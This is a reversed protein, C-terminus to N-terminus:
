GTGSTKCKQQKQQQDDNVPHEAVLQGTVCEQLNALTGRAKSKRHAVRRPRAINPEGSPRLDSWEVTEINVVDVSTPANGYHNAQQSVSLEM